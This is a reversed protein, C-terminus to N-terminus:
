CGFYCMRFCGISRWPADPNLSAPGECHPILVGFVLVVAAGLCDALAVMVSITVNTADRSLSLM